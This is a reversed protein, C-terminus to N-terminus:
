GQKQESGAGMIALNIGVGPNQYNREGSVYGDIVADQGWVGNGMGFVKEFNDEKLHGTFVSNM